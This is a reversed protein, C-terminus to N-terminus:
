TVLKFRPVKKGEIEVEELFEKVKRVWQTGKPYGPYPNLPLYTVLFVEPDNHSRGVAIIQYDRGKYHRYIQGPIITTM